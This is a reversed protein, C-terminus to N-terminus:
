YETPQYGESYLMDSIRTFLAPLQERAAKRYKAIVGQLHAAKADQSMIAYGPKAQELALAGHLDNMQYERLQVQHGALQQYVDYEEPQLELSVAQAGPTGANLTVTRRPRDASVGVRIMEQVVPDKEVSRLTFPMLWNELHLPTFHERTIEHGFIDRKPPLEGSHWPSQAKLADILSNVERFNPDEFRTVTRLAGSGPLFSATSREVWRKFNRDPDTFADLAESLGMTWTKSLVNKSFGAALALAFDDAAMDGRDWQSLLEWADAGLGLLMGFPEIQNYSIWKDTGPVKVSYPQNQQMWVKKKGRETPGGGTVYGLSALGASVTLWMSGITMRAMALDRRAGGAMLDARVQPDILASPTRQNAFRAINWPTRMFPVVVRGFPTQSAKQLFRMAGELDNTFTNTRAAERAAELMNEDPNRAYELMKTGLEPGRLGEGYGKRWAQAHLEANWNLMKFYEDAGILGRGPVRIVEGLADIAKAFPSDM